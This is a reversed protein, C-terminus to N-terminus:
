MGIIYPDSISGDGDLVYVSSDVDVTLAYTVDHQPFTQLADPNYYSVVIIFFLILFIVNFILWRNKM